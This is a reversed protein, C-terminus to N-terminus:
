NEMDILKFDPLRGEKQFGIIANRIEDPTMIVKDYVRQVSIVGTDEIQELIVSLAYAEKKKLFGYGRYMKKIQLLLYLLLGVVFYLGYGDISIYKFWVAWIIGGIIAVYYYIELLFQNSPFLLTKQYIIYLSIVTDMIILGHDSIGFIHKGVLTIFILTAALPFFAKRISSVVRNQLTSM